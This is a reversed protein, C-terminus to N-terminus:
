PTPEGSVAETVVFRRDGGSRAGAHREAHERVVRRFVELRGAEPHRSEHHARRRDPWGYLPRRNRGPDRPTAEDLAARHGSNRGLNGAGRGCPRVADDVATPGRSEDSAVRSWGWEAGRIAGYVPGVFSRTRYGTKTSM